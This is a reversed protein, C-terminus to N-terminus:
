RGGRSGGPLCGLGAAGPGGVLGGGAPEAGPLLRGAGGRAGPAPGPGGPGGALRDRPQTKTRLSWLFIGATRSGTGTVRVWRRLPRTCPRRGPRTWGTWACPWAECAAPWPRVPPPRWALRWPLRIWTGCAPSWPGCPRGLTASEKLTRARCAGSRSGRRPSGPPSSRGLAQPIRTCLPSTPPSSAPRWGPVSRSWLPAGSRPRRPCRPGSCPTRPVQGAPGRLAPGPCSGLPERGLARPDGAGSAGSRARRGPSRSHAAAPAGSPTGPGRLPRGSGGRAPDGAPLPDPGAGAAPLAVPAPPRWIGASWGGPSRGGGPAGGLIGTAGLGTGGRCAVPGRRAGALEARAGGRSLGGPPAGPFGPQPYGRPRGPRTRVPGLGETAGAAARPEPAGPLGGGPGELGTAEPVPGGIGSPWRASWRSICPSPWRGPSPIAPMMSCSVMLPPSPWPAGPCPLRQQRSGSELVLM